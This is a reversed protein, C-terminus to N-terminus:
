LYSVQGMIHLVEESGDTEADSHPYTQVVKDQNTDTTTQNMPSKARTPSSNVSRISISKNPSSEDSSNRPLRSSSSPVHGIPDSSDIGLKHLLADMKDMVLKAPSRMTKATISSYKKHNHTELYPQFTEHARQERLREQKLSEIFASKKEEQIRMREHFPIAGTGRRNKAAEDSVPNVKPKFTCEKMDKELKMYELESSREQITLHHNLRDFVNGSPLISRRVSFAPNIKPKFNLKEAETKEKEKKLEERTTRKKEAEEYLKDYFAQKKGSLEGKQDVGKKPSPSSFVDHNSHGPFMSQPSKSRPEHLAKSKALRSFVNETANHNADKHVKVRPKFSFEKAFKDEKEKILVSIEELRKKEAEKMRELVDGESKTGRNHNLKPSFTLEADREITLRRKNEAYEKAAEMMREGVDEIEFQVSSARRTIKPKFEEEKAGTDKKEKLTVPLLAESVSRRRTLSIRSSQSTFLQPKFSLEEVVEAEKKDALVKKKEERKAADNHLKQFYDVNSGEVDKANLIATMDMSYRRPKFTLEGDKEKKKAEVVLAIQDKPTMADGFNAISKRRNVNKKPDIGKFAPSASRSRSISSSRGREPLSSSTRDIRDTDIDDDDMEDYDNMEAFLASSRPADETVKSQNAQLEELTLAKQHDGDSM